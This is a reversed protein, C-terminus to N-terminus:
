KQRKKTKGTVKGMGSGLFLRRGAGFWGLFEADLLRQHALANLVQRRNLGSEYEGDRRALNTAKCGEIRHRLMGDNVVPPKAAVFQARLGPQAQIRRLPGGIADDLEAFGILSGPPNLYYVLVSVNEVYKSEAYRVSWPKPMLRNRANMDDM